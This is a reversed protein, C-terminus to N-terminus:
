QAALAPNRYRTKGDIGLPTASPDARWMVGLAAKQQEPTMGKSWQSYPVDNLAAAAGVYVQPTNSQMFQQDFKQVSNYKGSGGEFGDRQQQFYGNAGQAYDIDRQHAVLLLNTMDKIADPQMQINPFAKQYLQIAGLGGRSGLTDKEAAGAQQLTLKVFDQTASAKSPDVAGSTIASVFDNAAKPSFTALYNQVSQRADALSGTNISPVLNRVQLLQAQAAQAGQAKNISADVDSKDSTIAAKTVDLGANGQPTLAPMHTDIGPVVGASAPATPPPQAGPAGLGALAGGPAAPPATPALPALANRPAVNPPSQGWGPVAPSGPGAAGAPVGGLLAGAATTSGPQGPPIDSGPIMSAAGHAPYPQAGPAGLGTLAGAGGAAQTALNANNVIHNSMQPMPQGGADLLPKGDAGTQYVPRGSADTVPLPLTTTQAGAAGLARDRALPEALPLEGASTGGAVSQAKLGAAQIAVPSVAPQNTGPDIQVGAGTLSAVASAHSEPDKFANLIRGQADSPNALSDQLQQPTILGANFAAQASSPFQSTPVNALQYLRDRRSEVAEAMAKTPDAATAVQAYTLPDLPIGYRSYAAQGPWSQPAQAGADQPAAGHPLAGAAGGSTAPQAGDPAGSPLASPAPQPASQGGAVGPVGALGYLYGTRQLNLNQLQNGISAGQTQQQLLQNQQQQGQLQAWKQYQGLVDVGIPQVIASNVNDSM